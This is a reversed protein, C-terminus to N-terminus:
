SRPISRGRGTALGFFRDPGHYGCDAIRADLFDRLVASIPAKRRGADSKLPIQGECYEWGFEVRIVGDGGVSALYRPRFDKARMGDFAEEMLEDHAKFFAPGRMM